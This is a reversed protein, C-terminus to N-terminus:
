RKAYPAQPRKNSPLGQNRRLVGIYDPDVGLAEAIEEDHKGAHYHLLMLEVTNRKGNGDNNPPLLLAKRLSKVVYLTARMKEAITVDSAGTLWLQRLQENRARDTTVTTHYPPIGYLRRTRRVTISTCGVKNAIEVDSLGKTCLSLIANPDPLSHGLAIGLKRAIEGVTTKPICLSSQTIVLLPYM